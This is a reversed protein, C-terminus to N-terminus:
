NGGANGPPPNAPRRVEAMEPPISAAADGHERNRECASAEGAAMGKGAAAAPISIDVHVGGNSWAHVRGNLQGVLMSILKWGLSESRHMSFHLPFGVGNDAYALTLANGEDQHAEIRIWPSQRRIGPFAYKFTNSILETVVLGLPLARDIDILMEGADVSVAVSESGQYSNRLSEVLARLYAGFSIRSFDSSCYLAEHLLAISKVRNASEELSVAGERSRHRRFQLNLISSIVQLNNKVRHHLEKLLVEKERLSNEAEAQAKRRLSLEGEIDLVSQQLRGELNAIQRALRGILYFIFAASISVLAGLGLLVEPFRGAFIEPLSMGPQALTDDLPFVAFCASLVVTVLLAAGAVMQVGRLLDALAAGPKRFCEWALFAFSFGAACFAIAVPLEMPVSGGWWYAPRSEVAYGYAALGSVAISLLSLVLGFAIGERSLNEISLVFLAGALFIICCAGNLSIAAATSLTAEIAAHPIVELVLLLDALALTMVVACLLRAALRRQWLELVYAALLLMLAASDGTWIGSFGERLHPVGESFAALLPRLGLVVLAFAAWIQHKRCTEIPSNVFAMRNAGRRRTVVSIQAASDGM